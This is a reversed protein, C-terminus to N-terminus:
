DFPKGLIHKLYRSIMRRQYPRHFGEPSFVVHMGMGELFSLLSFAELAPDSNPDVQGASQLAIIENAFIGLVRKYRVLQRAM